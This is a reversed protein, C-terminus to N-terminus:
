TFLRSRTLHRDALLFDPSDDRQYKIPTVQLSLFSLFSFTILQDIANRNLRIYLYKQSTEFIIQYKEILSITCDM